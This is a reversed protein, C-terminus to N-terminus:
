KSNIGRSFDALIKIVFFVLPSFVVEFDEVKWKLKSYRERGRERQGALAGKEFTPRITYTFYLSSNIQYLFPHYVVSVVNM